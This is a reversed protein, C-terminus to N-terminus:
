RWSHHGFFKGVGDVFIQVCSQDVIYATEGALGDTRYTMSCVSHGIDIIFGDRRGFDIIFSQHGGECLEESAEISTEALEKIPTKLWEALRDHLSRLSMERILFQPMVLSYERAFKTTSTFDQRALQQALQVRDWYKGTMVVETLLLREGNNRLIDRVRWSSMQWGSNSPLKWSRLEEHPIPMSEELALAYRNLEGPRRRAKGKL